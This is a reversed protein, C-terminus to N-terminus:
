NTAFYLDNTYVTVGINKAKAFYSTFYSFILQTRWAFITARLNTDFPHGEKTQYLKSSIVNRKNFVFSESNSIKGTM